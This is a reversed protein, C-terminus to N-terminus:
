TEEDKESDIGEDTEEVKIQQQIGEIPEREEKDPGYAVQTRREAIALITEMKKGEYPVDEARCVQKLEDVNLYGLERLNDTVYRLKGISGSEAPIKKKKKLISPIPSKKPTKKMAQRRCSLQLRKPNLLGRKATRKTSTEMPPSDGVVKEASRKRKEAINLRGTQESLTEVDSNGSEYSEVDSTYSPLKDKGKSGRQVQGLLRHQLEECMGGVHMRIEMRLVKRMAERLEEKKRKKVEKKKARREKELREEEEKRAQEKKEQKLKEKESKAKEVEAKCAEEADIFSKMNAISNVLEEVQKRLGPEESVARREISRTHYGPSSSRGRPGAQWASSEGILRPCQNKYHGPEGCEYCVPVYRRPAERPVSTRDQQQYHRGGENYDRRGHGPYIVSPVGLSSKERNIKYQNDRLLQLVLTLQEAHERVTRGFILIDDLYVVMFKDLYPRFIRHMETQFTGPANCLGFPMVLYEYTGYRTKFTTKHVHEELMEIQHYGSKLDVKIFVTCGQVMDMLDDIRPIPETCKRTIKNLGRYDICMQFEGNGKLVFLVSAGFESTSPRIRGKSTLTELQKRLEEHEAPSMKYMRGKPPVAGPLLETHHKTPRNPLGFPEDTIGTWVGDLHRGSATWIGDLHSRCAAVRTERGEVCASRTGLHRIMTHYPMGPAGSWGMALLGRPAPGNSAEADGPRRVMGPVIHGPAGTASSWKVNRHGRAAARDWPRSGRLRRVMTHDPTGPAGSWGMAHHGRPAPGHSTGTDGPRQVMGQDADWPRSGGVRRVMTHDPMGQTASWGMTHDPTGSAGSWQITCCGRPPPGDWPRSGGLRRAMSHEPTGPAGSWGM